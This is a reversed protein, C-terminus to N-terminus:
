AGRLRITFADPFSVTLKTKHRRNYFKIYERISAKFPDRHGYNVRLTAEADAKSSGCVLDGCVSSLVATLDELGARGM